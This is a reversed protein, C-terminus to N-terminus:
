ADLNLEGQAWMTLTMDAALRMAGVEESAIARLVGSSIEPSVELTYTAAWLRVSAVPDDLLPGLAALSGRRKLEIAIARAKDFALNAARHSGRKLADGQATAEERFSSLLHSKTATLLDADNM